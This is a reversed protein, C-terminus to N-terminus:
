LGWTADCGLEDSVRKKKKHGPLKWSSHEGCTHCLVLRLIQSKTHFHIMMQALTLFVLPGKSEM